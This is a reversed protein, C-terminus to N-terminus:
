YGYGDVVEGYGAGFLNALYYVITGGCLPVDSKRCAEEYATIDGELLVPPHFAIGYKSQFYDCMMDSAHGRYMRKAEYLELQKSFYMEVIKKSEKDNQIVYALEAFEQGDSDIYVPPLVFPVVQSSLAICFIFLVEKLKNM